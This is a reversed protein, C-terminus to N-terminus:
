FLKNSFVEGTETLILSVENRDKLKKILRNDIMDKLAYSLKSRFSREKLDDGKLDKILDKM